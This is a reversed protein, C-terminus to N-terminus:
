LDELLNLIFEEVRDYVLDLKQDALTPYLETTMNIAKTAIETAVENNTM